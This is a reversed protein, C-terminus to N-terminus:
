FRNPEKAPGLCWFVLIMWGVLPILGVLQWWGSRNTDHLRRATVAFSPVFTAFSFTWSVTVNVYGLMTSLLCIVAVWWWFEGRPARGKFDAYKAICTNISQGLTM